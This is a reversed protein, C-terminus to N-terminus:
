AWAAIAVQGNESVLFVQINLRELGAGTESVLTRYRPFDPLGIVVKAWPHETQLRLAKLLAQAYWHQAQVTPNTPKKLGAKSADRYHRSPYGKVEVFLESSGKKAAIDPGRQKSGTDAKSVIKWGDADLFACLRDAVNGEWFWEEVPLPATESQPSKRPARARLDATADAGRLNVIKKRPGLVRRIVGDAALNRCIQNM